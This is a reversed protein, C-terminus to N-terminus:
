LRIINNKILSLNFLVVNFIIHDRLHEMTIVAM